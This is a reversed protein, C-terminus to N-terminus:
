LEFVMVWAMSIGHPNKTFMWPFTKLQGRSNGCVKEEFVGPFEAEEMGGIKVQRIRAM